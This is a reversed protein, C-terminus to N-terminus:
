ECGDEDLLGKRCAIAVAHATNLAGLKRRVDRMRDKVIPESMYLAKAVQKLQSGAAVLQLVALESDTLATV